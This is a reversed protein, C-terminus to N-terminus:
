SIYDSGWFEPAPRQFEVGIKYQPCPFMTESFDSPASLPTLGTWVVSAELRTGTKQNVLLLPTGEPIPEPSLILAGHASIVATQAQLISAPQSVKLPVVCVVRPSRRRTETMPDQDSLLGPGRATSISHCYQM